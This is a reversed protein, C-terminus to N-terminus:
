GNEGSLRRLDYKPNRHKRIANKSLLVRHVVVDGMSSSARSVNHPRGGGSDIVPM